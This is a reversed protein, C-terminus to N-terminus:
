FGVRGVHSERKVYSVKGADVHYGTGDEGDFTVTGSRAELAQALKKWAASGIVTIVILGSDFGIEVRIREDSM